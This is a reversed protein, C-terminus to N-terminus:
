IAELQLNGNEMSGICKVGRNGAREVDVPNALHHGAVHDRNWREALNAPSASLASFGPATEHRAAKVFNVSNAFSGAVDCRNWTDAPIQM